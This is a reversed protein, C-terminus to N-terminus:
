MTILQWTCQPEFINKNLALEINMTINKKHELQRIQFSHLITNRQLLGEGASRTWGVGSFVQDLSGDLRAEGPWPRVNHLDIPLVFLFMKM